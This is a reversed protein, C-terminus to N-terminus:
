QCAVFEFEKGDIFVTIREIEDITAKMGPIVNWKVRHHIVACTGDKKEVVVNRGDTEGNLIMKKYFDFEALQEKLADLSM